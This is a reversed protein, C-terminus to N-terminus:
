LSSDKVRTLSLKKIILLFLGHIKSSFRNLIENLFVRFDPCTIIFITLTPNPVIEGKFVYWSAVLAKRGHNATQFHERYNRVGIFIQLRKM